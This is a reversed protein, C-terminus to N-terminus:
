ADRTLWALLTARTLRWHVERGERMSEAKLGHADLTHLLRYVTRHTVGLEVAAERVTVRGRSLTRVLLLLQVLSRGRHHDGPTPADRRERSVNRGLTLCSACRHREM